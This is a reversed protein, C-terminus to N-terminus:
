WGEDELLEAQARELGEDLSSAEDGYVQDLRATVAESSHRSIYEKLALVYLGSRSVGLISALREAQEFIEDPMSVATKM